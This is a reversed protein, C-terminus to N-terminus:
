SLFRVTAIACKIAQIQQQFVDGPAVFYVEQLRTCDSTVPVFVNYAERRSQAWRGEVILVDRGGVCSTRAGALEFLEPKGIEGLAGRVEDVDGPWFQHPPRKFAAVMAEADSPQLVLDRYVFCLVANHNADSRFERRITSAPDTIGSRQETWGGAIAIRLPLPFDNLELM